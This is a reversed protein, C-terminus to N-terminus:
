GYWRRIYIMSMAMVRSTPYFLYIMIIKELNDLFGVIYHIVMVLNDGSVLECENPVLNRDISSRIGDLFGDRENRTGAQPHELMEVRELAQKVRM